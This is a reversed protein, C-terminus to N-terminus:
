KNFMGEPLGVNLKLDVFNYVEMLDGNKEGNQAPWGYNEVRVPLHTEKDFYFVSRYFPFQGKGEKTHVIEVQTVPRDQFKYDATHAETMGVRADYEWAKATREILNGIGAENIKHHSTESARPDGPDISVFGAISGLGHAKVRMMGKNKGAIYCVEQNAMSHPESWKMYVSFPQTRVRMDVVNEQQLQGNIRERKVLTCTYDSVEQYHKAAQSILKLPEDMVSPEASRAKTLDVSSSSTQPPTSPPPPPAQPRQAGALMAVAAVAMTGLYWLSITRRTRM